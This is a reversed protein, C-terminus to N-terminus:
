VYVFFFFFFSKSGVLANRLKECQRSHMCEEEENERKKEM